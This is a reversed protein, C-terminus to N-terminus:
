QESHFPTSLLVFLRPMVLLYKTALTAVNRIWVHEEQPVILMQTVNMNSRRLQLNELHVYCWHIELLDVQVTVHHQM